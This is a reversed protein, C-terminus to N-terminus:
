LLFSRVEPQRVNSILKGNQLSAQEVNICSLGVCVQVNKEMGYKPSLATKGFLQSLSAVTIVSVQKTKALMQNIQMGFQYYSIFIHNIVHSMSYFHKNIKENRTNEKQTHQGGPSAIDHQIKAQCSSQKRISGNPNQNLM